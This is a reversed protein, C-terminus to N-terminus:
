WGLLLRESFNRDGNMKLIKDGALEIDYEVRHFHLMGTATDYIMYGARNDMDRPQGVSGVSIIHKPADKSVKVRTDTIEFVDNHELIYCRYLHSHGIFTLLPLRDYIEFLRQAHEVEFVYDFLEPKLPSGHCLLVDHEYLNYTYPLGCLWQMSDPSILHAHEDLVKRAADYYYNYNMRGAVAADHNGLIAISAFSRVARCCAEPSGGYGVTDGLSIIMDVNSRLIASRIAAFAEANAHIDSFIGFRM